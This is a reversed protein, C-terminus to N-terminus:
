RWIQIRSGNCELVMAQGQPALVAHIPAKMLGLDSGRSGFSSVFQGKQSFVQVRDNGADCVLLMDTGFSSIGAACNLQGDKSGKEGFNYLFTGNEDFVKVCSEDVFPIFYKGDHYALFTPPNGEISTVKINRVLHGTRKDFVKIRRAEEGDELCAFHEETACMGLMEAGKQSYVTRLYTGKIDFEQIRGDNEPNDSVLIRDENFVVGWPRCLADGDGGFERLFKWDSNFVVIRDNGTDAVAIEGKNSLALSCPNHLRTPVDKGIIKVPKFEAKTDMTEVIQPSNSIEKGGIWVTIKYPSPKTARYTVTFTGTATTKVDKEVKKGDGDQIKVELLGESTDCVIIESTRTVIDFTNIYGCRVDVMSEITCRSPDTVCEQIHGLNQLSEMAGVNPVYQLSVAKKVPKNSLISKETLTKCIDKLLPYSQLVKLSVKREGM